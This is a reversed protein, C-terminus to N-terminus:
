SRPRRAPMRYAPDTETRSDPKRGNYDVAAEVESDLIGDLLAAVAARGRVGDSDRNGGRRAGGRRRRGCRDGGGLGSRGSWDRRRGRRSAGARVHGCPDRVDSYTRGRCRASRMDLSSVCWSERLLVVAPLLDHVVPVEPRRLPPAVAVDGPARRAVPGVVARARREVSRDRSLPGREHARDAGCGRGRLLRLHLAEQLKKSPDATIM